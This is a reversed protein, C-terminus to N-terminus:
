SSTWDPVLANDVDDALQQQAETAFGGWNMRAACIPGIGRQISDDNTLTRGCHGCKGIEKGYRLMAAQPDKAIDALVSNRMHKPVPHLEDSAQVKVFVYGAWRGETPRDVRYFRAPEGVAYRGAPVDPMPQEEPAAVLRPLSLLHSIRATAAVKKMAELAAYDHRQEPSLKQVELNLMFDVQRQSALPEDKVPADLIEGCEVCLPRQDDKSCPRTHAHECPVNLDLFPLQNQSCARVEAITAHRDHCTGCAITM